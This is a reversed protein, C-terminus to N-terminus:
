NKNGRNTRKYVYDKNALLQLNRILQKKKLDLMM